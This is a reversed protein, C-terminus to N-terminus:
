HREEKLTRIYTVLARLQPETFTGGFAPMAGHKGTKIRNMLYEDSHPSGALKPGRGAARGGEQHCWGCSTAFLKQGDLADASAGDASPAAAGQSLVSAPALLGVAVSAVAVLVATRTRNM